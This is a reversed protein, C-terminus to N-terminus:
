DEVEVEAESSGTSIESGFGVWWSVPAVWGVGERLCLDELENLVLLMDFMGDVDAESEADALPIVFTEVWVCAPLEM